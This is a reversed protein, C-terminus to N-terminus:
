FGQFARSVTTIFLVVYVCMTLWYLLSDEDRSLISRGFSAKRQIVGAIIMALFVLSLFIMFFTNETM